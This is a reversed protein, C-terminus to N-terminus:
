SFCYYYYFFCITLFSFANHIKILVYQPLSTLSTLFILLFSCDDVFFFPTYIIIYYCIVIAECFLTLLFM